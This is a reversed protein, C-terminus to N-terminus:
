LMRIPFLFVRKLISFLSITHGQLRMRMLSNLASSLKFIHTNDKIVVEAPFFMNFSNNRLSTPPNSQKTTHATMDSWM